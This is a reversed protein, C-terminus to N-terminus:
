SNTIWSSPFQTFVDNPEGHKWCLMSVVNKKIRRGFTEDPGTEGGEDRGLGGDEGGRGAGSRDSKKHKGEDKKYFSNRNITWKRGHLVWGTLSSSAQSSSGQSHQEERYDLRKLLPLGMTPSRHLNTHVREPEDQGRGEIVLLCPGQQHPFWHAISSFLLLAESEGGNGWRHLWGAGCWLVSYLSSTGHPSIQTDKHPLSNHSSLFCM